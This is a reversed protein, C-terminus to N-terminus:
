SRIRESLAVPKPERGLTILLAALGCTLAVDALNFVPWWGLDFLDVVRGDGVRDLLNATGGGVILGAPVPGGLHGRWAAAILAAIAALTIVAILGPPLGAGVGFAIGSNHTVRLTVPGLRVPDDLLQSAVAKVTLDAAVTAAAMPIIALRWARTM